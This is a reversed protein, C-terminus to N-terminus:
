QPDRDTGDGLPGLSFQEKSFPKDYYRLSTVPSCVPTECGALFLSFPLWFAGASAQAFKNTSDGCLGKIGLKEEWITRRVLNVPVGVITGAIVGVTYKPISLVSFDSKPQPKTGAAAASKSPAATSKSPSAVSNADNANGVTDDALASQASLVLCLSTLLGAVEYSRM